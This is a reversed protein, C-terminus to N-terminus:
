WRGWVMHRKARRVLVRGILTREVKAVLKRYDEIRQAYDANESRLAKAEKRYADLTLSDSTSAEILLANKANAKALKKRVEEIRERKEPARNASLPKKPTLHKNIRGALERDKDQATKPQVPKAPLTKKVTVKKPRGPAKTVKIPKPATRVAM